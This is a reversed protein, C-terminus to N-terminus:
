FFSYGFNLLNHAVVPAVLSGTRTRLWFLGAGLTGTIAIPRWNAVVEGNIVYLGHGAAFLFTVAVGTWGFSAGAIERGQAFTQVFFALLIGRFVLEEDLGPMIGQFLLRAASLDTGDAQFAELTWAFACLLAIMAFAPLTSGERQRWTLGVQFRSLGTARWYALAAGIVLLKGTWNWRLESLLPLSKQTWFGLPSVSWYIIVIGLGLLFPKTLVPRGCARLALVGAALIAIHLILTLPINPM